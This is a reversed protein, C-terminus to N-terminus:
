MCAGHPDRGLIWSSDSLAVQNDQLLRKGNALDSPVFTFIPKRWQNRALAKQGSLLVEM